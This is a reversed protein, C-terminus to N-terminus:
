AASFETFYLLRLSNVLSKRLNELNYVTQTKKKGVIGTM